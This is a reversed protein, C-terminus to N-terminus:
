KLSGVGAVERTGRPVADGDDASPTVTVRGFDVTSWKSQQHLFQPDSHSLFGFCSFTLRPSFSPTGEESRNKYKQAHRRGRPYLMEVFSSQRGM